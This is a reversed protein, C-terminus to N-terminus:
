NKPLFCLSWNEGQFIKINSRGISYISCLKWLHLPLRAEPPRPRPEHKDHCGWWQITSKAQTYQTCFWKFCCPMSWLKHMYGQSSQAQWSYLMPFFFGKLIERRTEAGMIKCHLSFLNANHWSSCFCTQNCFQFFACAHRAPCLVSCPSIITSDYLDAIHM